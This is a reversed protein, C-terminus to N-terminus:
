QMPKNRNRDLYPIIWDNCQISNELLFSSHFELYLIKASLTNLKQYKIFIKKHCQHCLYKIM